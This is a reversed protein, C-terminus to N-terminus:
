RGFALAATAVILAGLMWKQLTISQRVLKMLESMDDPEGEKIPGSVPVELSINTVPLIPNALNDWVKGSGDPRWDYDLNQVEITLSNPVRGAQVFALVRDFAESSIHADSLIASPEDFYHMQGIIPQNQGIIPQDPKGRREQLWRDHEATMAKLTFGLRITRIDEGTALAMHENFPLALHLAVHWGAKGHEVRSSVAAGTVDFTIRPM